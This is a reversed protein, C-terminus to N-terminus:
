ANTLAATPISVVEVGLAASMQQCAQSESESICASQRDGYVIRTVGVQLLRRFCAACPPGTVYATAGRLDCRAFAVANDEAHIFWNYKEPRTLPVIEHPVGAVPGNYGASIVRHDADVLVCGHKTHQDPSRRSVQEAIAMFYEDWSPRDTSM